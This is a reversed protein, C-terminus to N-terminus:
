SSLVQERNIVSVLRMEFDALEINAPIVDVDEERKLILSAYKIDKDNIYDDLEFLIFVLFDDENKIFNRTSNNGM